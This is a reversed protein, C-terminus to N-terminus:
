GYRAMQELLLPELPAIPHNRHAQIVLYHLEPDSFAQQIIRKADARHADTYIWFTQRNAPVPYLGAMDTVERAFIGYLSFESLTNARLSGLVQWWPRGHRAELHAILARTTHRAFVFPHAVYNHDLAQDLEPLGLLQRAAHNWRPVFHEHSAATQTHLAVSETRAFFEAEVSGTVVVDSDLAVWADADDRSSMELKIIQQANWGDRSANAFWGFRKNLSRRWKRYRESYGAVRRREAEVEAPLVDASALLRVEPAWSIAQFLPLHETQVVVWHPWHCGAAELSARLVKFHALDRAFTPTLLAIRMPNQDQEARYIIIRAL